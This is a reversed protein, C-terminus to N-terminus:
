AFRDGVTIDISNRRKRKIEQEKTFAKQGMGRMREEPLEDRLSESVKEISM